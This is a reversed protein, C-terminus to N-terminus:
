LRTGAAFHIQFSSEASSLPLAFDLRIPGIPSYWRIGLGAGTKFNISDLNYANGSDIFAAVGWNDLVTQEYEASFVSLFQGGIVNNAADRSGLEKYAYGRISNMGGAYFRYSTPLSDFQDVWTAGQETRAIFRGRWPSPVMWVAALSTQIFSVDSIPNQYSGALNFELRHGRTPRLPNDAVSQLWSGGPVLLLVNKSVAGATFDEYVLDLFLTQKWDNDFAHKLRASLKGALSQYTDTHERKLGGGFTFFDTAPNDLPVYYEFDATSLVTSLDLNATFYHGRRNLRRNYYSANLLPGIDTDFGGGFGYHHNKKPYLNIKVPVRGQELHGVDPRIDVGDFYGSKSLANHTKALPEDAYYDGSKFTIFKQVFEPKLIAQEVEVEGFRMRKGADFVLTIHATNNAKDILLQKEVFHGELYGKKLALSEIRSKMKEYQDHRLPQGISAVLTKRLTQFEPDHQAEGSLTINIDQVGVRPGVALSYVAQWCDQNFSLSKDIGPHYYGLARLAQQVEQGSKSFLRRIRWTPSTCPEQSLSLSLQVNKQADQDLGTISVDTMASTPLGALCLLCLFRGFTVAVPYRLCCVPWPLPNSDPPM